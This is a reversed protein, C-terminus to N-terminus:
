LHIYTDRRRAVNELEDLSDLVEITNRVRYQLIFNIIDTSPHSLRDVICRATGSRLHPICYTIHSPYAPHIRHQHVLHIFPYTLHHPYLTDHLKRQHSVQHSDGRIRPSPARLRSAAEWDLGDPALSSRSSCKLRSLPAAM